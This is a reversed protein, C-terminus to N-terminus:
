LFRQQPIKADRIGELDTREVGDGALEHKRDRNSSGRRVDVAREGHGALILM